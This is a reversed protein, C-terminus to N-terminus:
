GFDTVEGSVNAWFGYWRIGQLILSHEGDNCRKPLRRDVPATQDTHPTVARAGPQARLDSGQRYSRTPM